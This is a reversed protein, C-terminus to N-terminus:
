KWPWIPEAWRPLPLWSSRQIRSRLAARAAWPPTSAAPAVISRCVTCTRGALTNLVAGPDLRSALSFRPWPM